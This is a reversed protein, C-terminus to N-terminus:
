ECLQDVCAQGPECATSCDGCTEFDYTDCWKGEASAGDCECVYSLTADCHDDNWMGTARIEVCDENGYLSNPEMDAWLEINFGAGSIWRFDGEM